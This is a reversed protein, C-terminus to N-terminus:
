LWRNLVVLLVFAYHLLSSFILDACILPRVV